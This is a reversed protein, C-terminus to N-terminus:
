GAGSQRRARWDPKLFGDVMVQIMADVRQETTSAAAGLLRRAEDDFTIEQILLGHIGAALTSAVVGPDTYEERVIGAKFADAVFSGIMHLVDEEIPPKKHERLERASQAWAPNPITMLLLHNPHAVGWAAFRRAMQALREVPDAVDRCVRLDDRLSCYDARIIEMVLARKDRFYQYIAGPSYEVAEAVKALTVAEYGDRLFLTRAADLIRDTLDQRARERRRQSANSQAM